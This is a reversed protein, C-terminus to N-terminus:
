KNFNSAFGIVASVTVLVLVGLGIVGLIPVAEVLLIAGCLMAFLVILTMIGGIFSDIM